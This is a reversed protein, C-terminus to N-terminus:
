RRHDRVIPGRQYPHYSPPLYHSAPWRRVYHGPHWYGYPSYFGGVWVYDGECAVLQANSTLCLEPGPQAYAVCASTWIALFGLALRRKAAMLASIM